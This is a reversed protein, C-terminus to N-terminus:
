KKDSYGEIGKKFIDHFIKIKTQKNKGKFLIALKSEISDNLILNHLVEEHCEFCYNNKIKSDKISFFDSIQNESFYGNKKFKQPFYHHRSIHHMGKKCQTGYVNNPNGEVLEVNCLKCKSM